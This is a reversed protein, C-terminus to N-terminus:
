QFTCARGTKGRVPRGLVHHEGVEGREPGRRCSAGGEGGDHRPGCAAGGTAGGVDRDVDDHVGGGAIGVPLCPLLPCGSSSADGEGAGGKSVGAHGGGVEGGLDRRGAGHCICQHVLPLAWGVGGGRKGRMEEAQDRRKGRLQWPAPDGWRLLRRALVGDRIRESDRERVPSM